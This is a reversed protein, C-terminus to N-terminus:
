RSTNRRAHIRLQEIETQMEDTLRAWKKMEATSVDSLEQLYSEMSAKQKRMETRELLLQYIMQDKVRLLQSLETSSRAGGDAGDLSKNPSDKEHAVASMSKGVSRYTPALQNQKHQQRDLTDNEGLKNMESPVTYDKMALYQAQEQLDSASKLFSVMEEGSVDGGQSHVFTDFM